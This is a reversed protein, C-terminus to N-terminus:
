VTLGEDSLIQESVSDFLLMGMCHVRDLFVSLESIAGLCTRSCVKKLPLLDHNLPLLANNNQSDYLALQIQQHPRPHQAQAAAIKSLLFYLDSLCYHNWHGWPM